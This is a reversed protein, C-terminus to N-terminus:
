VVLADPIAKIITDLQVRMKETSRRAYEKQSAFVSVALGILLYLGVGIIDRAQVISLSFHPLLLVMLLTAGIFTAIVSPGAGWTFAVFMIMLIFLAGEFRFSPYVHNLLVMVAVVLTQLLGAIFYGVVPHALPGTLIRPAFTHELFWQRIKKWSQGALIRASRKGHRSSAIRFTQEHMSEHGRTDM